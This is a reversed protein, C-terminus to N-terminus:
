NTRKLIIFTIDDSQLSGDAYDQLTELLAKKMEEASLQNHDLLWQEFREESFLEGSPNTAETVGDSFLMLIDGKGISLTAKPLEIEEM